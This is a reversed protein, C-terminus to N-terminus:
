PKALTSFTLTIGLLAPKEYPRLRAGAYGGGLNMQNPAAPDERMPAPIARSHRSSFSKWVAELVPLDALDRIRDRPDSTLGAGNPHRRASRIRKALGMLM